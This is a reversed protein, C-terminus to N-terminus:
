EAAAPRGTARGPWAVVLAAVVLVAAQAALGEWSPAFGLTEAWEPLEAPNFSILAQEQFEQLGAGVLRAAMLLLFVSTALFLPRLPLRVAARILLWWLVALGL